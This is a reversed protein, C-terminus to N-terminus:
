NKGGEPTTSSVTAAPGTGAKTMARVNFEYSTFSRLGTVEVSTIDGDHVLVDEPADPGVVQVMYGTIVGNRKEMLLHSWSLKATTPLNHTVSLENPPVSPATYTHLYKRMHTHMHIHTYNFLNCMAIITQM